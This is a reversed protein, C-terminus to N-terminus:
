LAHCFGRVWVCFWIGGRLVCLILHTISLSLSLLSFSRVFWPVCFLRFCMCVCVCVCVYVFLFLSLYIGLDLDNALHASSYLTVPQPTDNQQQGELPFPFLLLGKYADLVFLSGREDFRLGLPRGCLEELEEPYDNYSTTVVQKWPWQPQQNPSNQNSELRDRCGENLWAVTQFHPPSTKQPRAGEVSSAEVEFSVIRGDMLGTFVTGTVPHVALSEPGLMANEFLREVGERLLTNEELLPLDTSKSPSWRVAGIGQFEGGLFTLLLSAIVAIVGYHFWKM